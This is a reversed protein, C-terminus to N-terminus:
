SHQQHTQIARRLTIFALLSFPQYVRGHHTLV